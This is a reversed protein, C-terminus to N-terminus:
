NNTRALSMEENLKDVQDYTNLNQLRQKLEKLTSKRNIYNVLTAPLAGLFMFSFFPDIFLFLATLSSFTIATNLEFNMKGDKVNKCKLIEEKIKLYDKKDEKEIKNVGNESWLNYNFLYRINYDNSGEPRNDHMAPIFLSSFKDGFAYGVLPVVLIPCALFAGYTLLVENTFKNYQKEYLETVIRQKMIKEKTEEM